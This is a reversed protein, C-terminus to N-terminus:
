TLGRQAKTGWDKFQPVKRLHFNNINNEQPWLYLRVERCPCTVILGGLQHSSCTQAPFCPNLSHAKFQTPLSCRREESGGPVQPRLASFSSVRLFVSRTSVTDMARQSTSTTQFGTWSPPDPGAFGCRVSM